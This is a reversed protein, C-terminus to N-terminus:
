RIALGIAHTGAFSLGTERFEDDRETVLGAVILRAVQWLRHSDGHGQLEQGVDLLRDSCLGRRISPVASSRMQM